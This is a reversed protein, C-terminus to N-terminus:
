PAVLLLEFREPCATTMMRSGSYRVRVTGFEVVSVAEAHFPIQPPTTANRACVSVTALPPITVALERPYRPPFAAPPVPSPPLPIVEPETTATFGPALALPVGPPAPPGAPAM